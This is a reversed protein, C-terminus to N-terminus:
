AMAEVITTLKDMQPKASLEMAFRHASAKFQGLAARDIGSIARAMSAASFDSAVVGLRYEEVIRAMEPSPGIAIAVRAQIFEFLKNPLAHLQNFCTPPLAYIGIDYENLRAALDRMGIPELLRVRGSARCATRLEEFYGPDRDVLFLDLSYRDDLLEVARIMTEIARSRTAIGHHVIRFEGDKRDIPSLDSFFPANTIVAPKPIGFDAAYRAAIGDSVTMMSDVARIYKKLVFDVYPKDVRLWRKDGSQGSSYEHADYLLKANRKVLTALGLSSLDNAVVIDYDNEKAAKVLMSYRPNWLLVAERIRPLGFLRDLFLAARRLFSYASRRYRGGRTEADEAGPALCLFAHEIGSASLGAADVEWRDRLALIQRYVRPDKGLDTDSIVLIRKRGHDSM